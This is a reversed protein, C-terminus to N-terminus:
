STAPTTRSSTCCAPAATSPRPPRSCRTPRRALHLGRRPLRRRAHRPRRLRRADARPGLRRRLHDRGQGADPADARVIVYPDYIVRLRDGHAAEIGELAERVVADPENILKKM